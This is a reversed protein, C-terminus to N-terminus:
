TENFIKIFKRKLLYKYLLRQNIANQRDTSSKETWDIYPDIDAIYIDAYQSYLTTFYLILFIETSTKGNPLVTKTLITRLYKAFLPNLFLINNPNTLNYKDAQSEASIEKKYIETIITITDDPIELPNWKNCNPYVVINAEKILKEEREPYLDVIMDFKKFKTLDVNFNEGMLCISKKNIENKINKATELFQFLYSDTIYKKNATIFTKVFDINNKINYFLTDYDELLIKDLINDVILRTDLLYFRRMLDIQPKRKHINNNRLKELKRKSINRYHRAYGYTYFDIGMVFVEKAQCHLLDAIACTGTYPRTGLSYRLKRYYDLDIHGFSVINRNRSLFMKIDYKFPEIPPYPCRLYKVNNNKIFIPNINNEGPYDTQNLSNYLIDTRSGIHEYLNPPIPLSKNLRIIVDFSDIFKGLNCEQVTRSPGVVIVKKNKVLNYFNKDDSSIIKRKKPKKYNMQNINKDKSQQYIYRIYGSCFQLHRSFFNNYYHQKCFNCYIIKQSDKHYNVLKYM